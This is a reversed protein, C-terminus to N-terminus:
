WRLIQYNSSTVIKINKEPNHVLSKFYGSKSTNIYKIKPKVRIWSIRFTMTHKIILFKIEKSESFVLFDILKVFTNNKEFVNKRNTCISHNKWAIGSSTPNKVRHYVKNM